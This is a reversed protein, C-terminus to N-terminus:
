FRSLLVYEEGVGVRWRACFSVTLICSLHVSCVDADLCPRVLRELLVVLSRDQKLVKGSSVKTERNAQPLDHIAVLLNTLIDKMAIETLSCFLCLCM